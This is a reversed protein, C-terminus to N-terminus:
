TASEKRTFRAKPPTAAKLSAVKSPLIYIKQLLHEIIDMIASLEEPKPAHGRHSAASGVDLAAELIDRESKTVLGEGLLTDLKKSFVGVDGIQENMVLDLVTRTGMAALRNSGTHLALYVEKMLPPIDKGLQHLWPPERRGIIPPYYTPSLEQLIKAEIMDHPFWYDEWYYRRFIVEGCGCCALMESIQTWFPHWHENEVRVGEDRAQALLEHKTSRMCRNCRAWKTNYDTGSNM